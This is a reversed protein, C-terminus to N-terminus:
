LIIHYTSINIQDFIAVGMQRNLQLHVPLLVAVLRQSDWCYWDETDASYQWLKESGDPQLKQEWRLAAIYKQLLFWIYKLNM